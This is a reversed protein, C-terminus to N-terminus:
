LDISQPKGNDRSSVQLLFPVAVQCDNTVDVVDFRHPASFRRSLEEVASRTSGCGVVTHGLSVFKAVMAEGLGKTAGTIVVLRGNGKQAM